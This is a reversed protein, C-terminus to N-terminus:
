PNRKYFWNSCFHANYSKKSQNSWLNHAMIGSDYVVWGYDMHTDMVGLAFLTKSLAISAHSGLARGLMMKQPPRNRKLSKM